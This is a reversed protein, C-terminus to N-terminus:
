TESRCFLNAHIFKEKCREYLFYLLYQLFCKQLSFIEKSVVTTSGPNGLSPADFALSLVLTLRNNPLIKASFQMFMFSNPSLPADRTDGM